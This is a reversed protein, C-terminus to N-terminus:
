IGCLQILTTLIPQCMDVFVKLEGYLVQPFKMTYKEASQIKFRHVHM